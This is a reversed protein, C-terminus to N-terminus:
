RGPRARALPRHLHARWAYLGVRQLGLGLWLLALGVAVTVAVLLAVLFLIAM